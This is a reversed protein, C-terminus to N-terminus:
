RKEDELLNLIARALARKGESHAVADLSLGAQYSGARVCAELYERLPKAEETGLTSRAAHKLAKERAEFREKAQEDTQPKAELQEWGV